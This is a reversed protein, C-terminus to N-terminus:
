QALTLLWGTGAIEEMWSPTGDAARSYEELKDEEAERETDDWDRRIECRLLVYPVTRRPAHRPRKLEM